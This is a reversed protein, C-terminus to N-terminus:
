IHILSLTICITVLLYVIIIVEEVVVPYSEFFGLADTLNLEEAVPRGRFCGDLVAASQGDLGAAEWGRTAALELFHCADSWTVVSVIVLSSLIFATWTTVATVVCTLRLFNIGADVGGTSSFKVCRPCIM